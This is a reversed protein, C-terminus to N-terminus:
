KNFNKIMYECYFKAINLGSIKEIEEFFANSNVECIAPSDDDNYLLDIGCYDLNLGKAVREAVEKQENSLTVLEGKGGLAINSRFDFDNKRRMSVVVKGGICIVRIDEGFHKGLYKQYLHPKMKLEEMLSLLQNKDKALYVGKGMSGFSEKVVIPLQLKDILADADSEKIIEKSDYCLPAYITKPISLNQKELEIYTEGKDDCIRIAEHNNFLKLGKNKLNKSLYKDKDLYVAFDYSIKSDFILYGHDIIDCTVNLKEFETKLREAQRVTNVPKRFANIIIACKM